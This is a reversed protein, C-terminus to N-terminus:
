DLVTGGLIRWIVEPHGAFGVGRFRCNRFSCDKLGIAGIIESRQPPLEWLVGMASGGLDCDYMQFRDLPLLVAPGIIECDEFDHNALLALDHGRCLEAIYVVRRDYHVRDDPLSQPTDTM